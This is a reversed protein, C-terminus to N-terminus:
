QQYNQVWACLAFEATHHLWAGISSRSEQEVWASISYSGLHNEVEAVNQGAPLLVPFHLCIDERCIIFLESRDRDEQGSILWITKSMYLLTQFITLTTMHTALLFLTSHINSTLWSDKMVLIFPFNIHTLHVNSHPKTSHNGGNYIELKALLSCYISNWESFFLIILDTKGKSKTFVYNWSTDRISHYRDDSNRRPSIASEPLPCICPKGPADQALFYSSFCM